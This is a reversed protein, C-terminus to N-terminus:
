PAAPCSHTARPSAAGSSAATGSRRAKAASLAKRPDRSHIGDAAILLAGDHSGAPKGTAKDIFHPACATPPRPGAADSSPQHSHERRGLREIAADLLIQQLTGRHISFQPWKYGAEIGRPESWIPKGHKSFYALEKTRVGARRAPRAPRARDTRAGCAAARQHRRRAAEARVRERVSQRSRRDPAPQAGADARRHRRRRHTRDHYARGPLDDHCPLAATPLQSPRGPISPGAARRYQGAKARPERHQFEIIGGAGARESGVDGQLLGAGGVAASRSSKLALWCFLGSYRAILGFPRTGDSTVSRPMRVSVGAISAKM